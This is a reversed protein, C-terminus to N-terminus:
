RGGTSKHEIVPTFNNFSDISSIPAGNLKISTALFGNFSALSCFVREVAHALTGDQAGNEPDFGLKALEILDACQHIAKPKFWFMSGAFFGLSIDAGSARRMPNLIRTVTQLNAGWYQPNTLYDIHPGVIGCEPTRILRVASETTNQSGVLENFLRRRWFDGYESYKSRKGHIKLIADYPEFLQRKQLALFPGIDRGRNESLAISVSAATDFFGDFIPQIAGEHPTTVFLDFPEIINRLYTRIESILEPYFLHLVVAINVNSRAVPGTSILRFTPFVDGKKLTLVTLGSTARSYFDRSRNAFNDIQRIEPMDKSDDLWSLDQKCPNNRLLETKILGCEKAIAQGLFHAPNFQFLIRPNLLQLINGQQTLHKAWRLAGRFYEIRNCKFWSGIKAGAQSAKVSLGIEDHIIIELKSNRPQINVIWETFWASKRGIPSLYLLYSQLHTGMQNSQTMSIMDLRTYNKQIGELAVIFQQRNTILFSSNVLFISRTPYRKAIRQIGVKYSYFDYGVNPRFICEVQDHFREALAASNCTSVVLIQDCVQLLCDLLTEFTADFRDEPDFHAVVAVSDGTAATNM